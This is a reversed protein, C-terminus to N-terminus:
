YAEGELRQPTPNVSHTIATVALSTRAEQEISRLHEVPQGTGSGSWAAAVWFTGEVAHGPALQSHFVIAENAGDPTVLSDFASAASPNFYLAMGIVGISASQQGELSLRGTGNDRHLAPLERIGAGVQYSHALSIPEIKFDCRVAENGATISYTEVISVVDSGMHWHEMRAEITARVPGSAIVRYTPTDGQPPKHVYDPVNVPPRFVAGNQTTFLGGLGLTDGIHLVDRGVASHSGASASMYGVLENMLGPHEKARAQVDLFFGGYTRYGIMESELAATAHNYGFSHSASVQKPEPISEHLTKSYYVDIPLTAHPSARVDIVFEDPQGNGDLDDAQSSLVALPSRVIAVAMSGPFGPAIRALDKASVVVVTHVSQASPNSVQVELRDSFNPFLWPAVAQGTASHPLVLLLASAALLSNMFDFATESQM